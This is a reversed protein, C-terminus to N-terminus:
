LRQQRARDHPAKACDHRSAACWLSARGHRGVSTVTGAVQGDVMFPDGM